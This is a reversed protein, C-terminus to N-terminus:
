GSGRFARMDDARGHSGGQSREWLRGCRCVALPLSAELDCTWYRVVQIGVRGLRTMVRVGRQRYGVPQLTDPELVEEVYDAENIHCGGPDEVCEFMFITAAETM